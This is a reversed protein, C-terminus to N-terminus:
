FRVTLNMRAEPLKWHSRCLALTRFIRAIEDYAAFYDLLHLMPNSYKMGNQNQKSKAKQKQKPNSEERDIKMSDYIM